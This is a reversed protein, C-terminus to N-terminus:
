RFTGKPVTKRKATRPKGMLRELCVYRVGDIIHNYDDVPENLWKGDADQMWSNAVYTGNDNQYRWGTEYSGTWTGAFATIGLVLSLIITTILLRRKM